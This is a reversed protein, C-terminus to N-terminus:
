NGDAYLKLTEGHCKNPFCHCGLVKGKLSKIKKHLSKKFPFYNEAFWNCVEERTGDADMMFPNGWETFRDIRVYIGNREAYSLVKLHKHMNIVVTERSVTKNMLETEEKTWDEKQAADKKQEQRVEKSLHLMSSTTLETKNKSIAEEFINDPISAIQQSIFSEKKTIGIDELTPLTGNLLKAVERYQNGRNGGKEINESLWKGKSRELRLRYEVIQNQVELSQKTQKAWAQFAAVQDSLSKIEDWDKSLEIESKIKDWKVLASNEEM